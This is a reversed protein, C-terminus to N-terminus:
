ITSNVCFKAANVHSLTAIKNIEENKPMQSCLPINYLSTLADAPVLSIIKGLIM